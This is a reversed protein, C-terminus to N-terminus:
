IFQIHAVFLFTHPDLIFATLYINSPAENVMQDFCRNTAYWIQKLVYNPLHAIDKVIIEHISATCALWFLYVNAATSQSSELCTISKATPGIIM